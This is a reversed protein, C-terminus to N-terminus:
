VGDPAKGSEEAAATQSLQPATNKGPSAKSMYGKAGCSWSYRRRVEVVALMLKERSMLVKPIEVFSKCTLTVQLVCDDTAIGAKSIAASVDKVQGYRAFFARM